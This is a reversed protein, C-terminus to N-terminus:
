ATFVGGDVGNAVNAARNRMLARMLRPRQAAFGEGTPEAALIRDLRFHRPAQRLRCWGGLVQAEVFYTLDLPLVERATEQGAADRYRLVLVRADRIARRLPAPDIGAPIAHWGSAGEPDLGLKQAATEAAAVLTADGTRPLLALAVRLAEAEARTFNLPPLDFGPRLVYGLGAAGEVPIGMAQLGSLDRYVTRASVELREALQAATLGRRAARLLGVIQFQRIVRSM